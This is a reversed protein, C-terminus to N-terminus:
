SKTMHSKHKLSGHGLDHLLDMHKLPLQVTKHGHEDVCVTALERMLADVRQPGSCVAVVLVQEFLPDLSALLLVLLNSQDEPPKINPPLLHLRVHPLLHLRWREM